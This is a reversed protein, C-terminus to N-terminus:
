GARPAPLTVAHLLYSATTAALIAVLSFARVIETPRVGFVGAAFRALAQRVLASAYRSETGLVGGHLRVLMRKSRGEHWGRRIAQLLRGREPPLVQAVPADPILVVTEGAANARICLETEECGALGGAMRGLTTEFGDLRELVDRRVLMNCGIV